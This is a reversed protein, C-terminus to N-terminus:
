LAGTKKVIDRVADASVGAATAVAKLVDAEKKDIGNSARAVLAAFYLGAHAQELHALRRGVAEARAAVGELKAREACEELLTEAEWEVVVGESLIEVARIMTGLETADVAGDALSTLYGAEVAAAFVDSQQPVQLEKRIGAAQAELDAIASKPDPQRKAM